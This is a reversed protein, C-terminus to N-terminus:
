AQPVQRLKVLKGNISVDLPVLKVLAQRSQELRILKGNISVDLPVKNLLVQRLQLLRVLKGALKKSEQAPTGALLQKTPAHSM